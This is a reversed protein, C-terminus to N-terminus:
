VQSYAENTFAFSEPHRVQIDIDQIARIWTQNSSFAGGSNDGAVNSTAIEMGGWQAIILERWNAFFIETLNTGSGKTLNTPLQTTTHFPYGLTDAMMQDSMPLMVYAGLTQASYQAIREQKLLRKAKPHMVYGLNGRLANADEVVGALKDMDVFNARAGDAGLNLDGINSINIIGTPQNSSGTGRLAALDILLSLAIAIDANILAEAGPNSNKLLRNSLKVLASAQHPNMTLQGLALDSATIAANEAVWYATAGGSQKPIEVPYGNLNTMVTAGAKIVVSEARLMEIIQTIAQPPILYGGASGTGGSMVKQRYEDMVSKEFGEGWENMVMGRIANMLSFKQKEDELGKMVISRQAMAELIDKQKTGLEDVKAQIEAVKENFTETSIVGDKLSTQLGELIEKIKQLEPDM